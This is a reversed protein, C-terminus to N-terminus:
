NSYFKDKFDIEEEFGTTKMTLRHLKQLLNESGTTKLHQLFISKSM